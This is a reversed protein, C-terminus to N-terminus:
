FGWTKILEPTVSDKTELYPEITKTEEIKQQLLTSEEYQSKMNQRKIEDRIDGSITGRLESESTKIYAYDKRDFIRYLSDKRKNKLNLWEQSSMRPPTHNLGLVDIGCGISIFDKALIKDSKKIFRGEHCNIAYLFSNESLDYKAMLRMLTRAWSMNTDMSRGNFDIAFSNVGQNIYNEIIMELFQRPMVAPIIGMIPKKNLTGAIELSKNIL